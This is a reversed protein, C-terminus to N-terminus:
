LEEFHYYDIMDAPPAAHPEVNYPLIKLRANERPQRQPYALALAEKREKQVYDSTAANESWCLVFTDSEQIFDSIEESYIYGAKLRHKDFFVDIDLAEHIKAIREAAKIDKHSYSIFLKKTPKTVIKTNLQRPSEVIKTIFIMEGAIAGNVFINVSCSLEDVNIDDPIQYDFARKVFSGQWVVSKRCNYLLTDGHINIEINVEDGNKLKVELPEYGRREAKKDAESALVSVKETEEELHLYVQVIFHQRPKVESPAFVSSYVPKLEKKRFLRSLLSSSQYSQPYNTKRIPNYSISDQHSPRVGGMTSAFDDIIDSSLCECIESPICNWDIPEPKSDNRNCEGNSVTIEKDFDCTSEFDIRESKLKQINHPLYLESKGGEFLIIEDCYPLNLLANIDNKITELTQYRRSVNHNLSKIIIKDLTTEFASSANQLRAPSIINNGNIRYELSKKGYQQWFPPFLYNLLYYAIMGVGYTASAENFIKHKYTEPAMYWPSGIASTVSDPDENGWLCSGFDGLVYHGDKKRFINNLHIDRYYIGHKLCDQLADIIDLLLHYLGKGSLQFYHSCLLDPLSIAQEM